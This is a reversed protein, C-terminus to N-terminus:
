MIDSEEDQSTESWFSDLVHELGKSDRIARCSHWHKPFLRMYDNRGYREDILLVAGVDSECRIVRGAAQLVKNMGPYMYAYEFGMGNKGNYYDRIINQQISLQPLGVSVIATGILRSGRLDIGESFIGGLVCFATLTEKPNEKFRSLFQERAEETMSPEQIFSTVGPYDSAFREYVDRLYKYSPFYIIYNGTKRSIFMGILKSIESVSQERRAYKTSIKDAAMLCLKGNDFPSDLAIVRDEAGGGLIERFYDLPTLTASFLIASGGRKMAEALLFSPDLCFLKIVVDGQRAEVFTIYREDYIESIQLFALSEFYQQLFDSDDALSPMEKLMLECVATYEGVLGLFDIQPEASAFWGQEGCIKRLEIFKKNISGLIKELKKTKGKFRKKLDFFSAKRLESSFMERSRDVLNHAEDILFVYDGGGDAFFRRLYAKPDFVYNYDCIVCDVWLSVDLSLEFPCVTHREAYEEIVNRTISSCNTIVGYVADNVRDFHGKAYRCADPRCVAKECFCIKDKATLTLTKIRLDSRRMHDFAEEAAQRTITKATLYFIKSTNGEGMAKVAPFLASITKGTGTPAQIFLKKGSTITRYVHVALERQGKRYCSFPFALAKISTNRTDEWDSTFVAWVTYKDLLDAIFAELESFAYSVSYERSEGHEVNYYTLQASIENLQNLRAYIYAYCKAQAWHTINGSIEIDDIPQSTTKIEDIVIRGGDSIIGDARGELTFHIDGRSIDASLFVESKYDDYLQSKKKQLSRHLRAGELMRDSPAYGGDIDGSRLIFEVLKRVSLKIKNEM